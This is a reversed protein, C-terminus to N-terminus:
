VKERRKGDQNLCARLDGSKSGGKMGNCGQLYKKNRVSNGKRHDVKWLPCARSEVELQKWVQTCQLGARPRMVTSSKDLHGSVVGEGHWIWQACKIRGNILKRFERGEAEVSCM